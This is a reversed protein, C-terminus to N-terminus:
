YVVSALARRVSPTPVPPPGAKRRMRQPRGPSDSSFPGGTATAAPVRGCSEVGNAPRVSADSVEYSSTAILDDSLLPLPCTRLRAVRPPPDEVLLNTASPTLKM